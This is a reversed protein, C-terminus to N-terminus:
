KKNRSVDLVRLFYYFTDNYFEADNECGQQLRYRIYIVIYERCKIEIEIAPGDRELRRYFLIIRNCRVTTRYRRLFSDRSIPIDDRAHSASRVNIMNNDDRAWLVRLIYITCDLWYGEERLARFVRKRRLSARINNYRSTYKITQRTRAIHMINHVYQTINKCTHIIYYTNVHM